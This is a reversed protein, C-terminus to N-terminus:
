KSNIINIAKKMAIFVYGWLIPLWLPMIKFLSNRIFTEVGTSVFFYESITLTVLGFVFFFIDKKEYRILLSLVIIGLYVGSLIYDNKILPILLIMLIIPLINLIVKNIKKMIIKM